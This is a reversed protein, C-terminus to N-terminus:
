IKVVKLSTRFKKDNSIEIIYVGSKLDSFDIEFNSNPAFNYEKLLSGMTSFVRYSSIDNINNSSITCKDYVPNNYYLKTNKNDFSQIDVVHVWNDNAINLNKDIKTVVIEHNNPGMFESTGLFWYSSDSSLYLDIAEDYYMGGHTTAWMYWIGPEFKYFYMEENGENISTTYGAVILNGDWDCEIKNYKEDLHYIDDNIVKHFNYEFNNHLSIIFGDKKTEEFYKESTGCMAWGDTTKCISSIYSKDIQSPYTKLNINDEEPSFHCLFGTKTNTYEDLIWGTGTIVSDGFTQLSLIESDFDAFEMNTITEDDLNYSIISAKVEFDDIGFSNVGMYINNGLNAISTAEDWINENGFHKTWLINYSTDLKMLFADYDTNENDNSIGCIFYHSGSFIIDNAKYINEFYYYNNNIVSGTDNLVFIAPNLTHNNVSSNGLVLVNGNHNEIIKEGYNYYYDGYTKTFYSEQAKIGFGLFNFLIIIILLKRNM